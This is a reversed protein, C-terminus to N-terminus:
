AGDRSPRKRASWELACFGQRRTEAARARFQKGNDGKPYRSRRQLDDGGDVLDM